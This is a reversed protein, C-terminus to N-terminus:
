TELQALAEAAPTYNPNRRVARELDSEAQEVQGLAINALGRYYYSEEFYPRDQLTVDALLVVDEYRGINYYAEYPGFQYWLMRWPLGLTRAQDFAAAASEYNGLANFATGLNFWLFANDQERSLDERAQDLAMRWMSEDDMAPGIIEALDTQQSSESIAIYNRSFQRWYRDLEDYSIIRGQADANEGPVESTGFWSDFVWVQEDQDDYAVVLLYHGYWGMWRYEGPPDLGLEVIVPFGAALLRKLLDLNGNSRSIASLTTNNNVYDAMEHPSVNRDEPDPKLIAATEEQNQDLGFYSLAMALTAPGCNNWTQFHHKVGDLRAAPPAPPSQRTPPLTPQVTPTATPQTTITAPPRVSPAATEQTVSIEETPSAAANPGPTSGPPALLSDMNVSIAVTPLMEVHEREALAQLPEPLYAAVYRSPIAKLITPLQWIVLALAFFVALLILRRRHM